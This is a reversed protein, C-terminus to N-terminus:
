RLVGGRLRLSSSVSAWEWRTVAYVMERAFLIGNREVIQSNESAGSKKVVDALHGDGILNEL